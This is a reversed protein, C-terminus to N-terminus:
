AVDPCRYVHYRYDIDNPGINTYITKDGSFSTVKWLRGGQKFESLPAPGDVAPYYAMNPNVPEGDISVLYGEESFSMRNSSIQEVSPSFRESLTAKAVINMDTKVRNWEASCVYFSDPNELANERAYAIASMPEKAGEIEMTVSVRVIEFPLVPYFPDLNDYFGFILKSELWLVHKPEPYSGWCGDFTTDIYVPKIEVDEMWRCIYGNETKEAQIKETEATSAAESCSTLPVFSILLPLLMLVRRNM